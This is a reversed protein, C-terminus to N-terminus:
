THLYQPFAKLRDLWTRLCWLVWAHLCRIHSFRGETCDCGQVPFFDFQLTVRFLSHPFVEDDCSSELLHSFASVLGPHISPFGTPIGSTMKTWQVGLLSCLVFLFRPYFVLASVKQGVSSWFVTFPFFLLFKDTTVFLKFMKRTYHSGIFTMLIFLQM